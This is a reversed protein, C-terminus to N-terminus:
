AESLRVVHMQKGYVHLGRNNYILIVHVRSMQDVTGHFRFRVRKEKQYEQMKLGMLGIDEASLLIVQRSNFTHRNYRARQNVNRQTIHYLQHVNANLITNSKKMTTNCMISLQRILPQVLHDKSMDTDRAFVALHSPMGFPSFMEFDFSGDAAVATTKYERFQPLHLLAQEAAVIQNGGNFEYLVLNELKAAGPLFSFDVDRLELRFDRLEPPLHMTEYNLPSSCGIRANPNLIPACLHQSIRKQSQFVPGVQNSKELVHAFPKEILRKQYEAGLHVLCCTTAHAGGANALIAEARVKTMAVKADADRGFVPVQTVVRLVGGFYSFSVVADKTDFWVVSPAQPGAQNGVDNFQVFFTRNEEFSLALDQFVWTGAATVGVLQPHDGPDTLVTTLDVAPIVVEFLNGVCLGNVTAVRTAQDTLRTDPVMGFETVLLPPESGADHHKATTAHMLAEIPASAGVFHATGSTSYEADGLLFFKHCIKPQELQTVEDDFDDWEFKYEDNNVYAKATMPVCLLKQEYTAALNLPAHNLGRGGFQVIFKHSSVPEAFWLRSSPVIKSRVIAKAEPTAAADEAALLAAHDYNDINERFHQLSNLNPTVGDAQTASLNPDYFPPAILEWSYARDIQAGDFKVHNAAVSPFSDPHTSEFVQNTTYGQVALDDLRILATQLVKVGDYALAPLGVVMNAAAECQIGYWPSGVEDNMPGHLVPVSIGRLADQFSKQGYESFKKTYATFLVGGNGAAFDGAVPAGTTSYLHIANVPRANGMREFFNPHSAGAESPGYLAYDGGVKIRVGPCGKIYFSKLAASPLADLVDVEFSPALHYGAASTFVQDNTLGAKCLFCNGNSARTTQIPRIYIRFTAIDAVVSTQVPDAVTFKQIEQAGNLTVRFGESRYVFKEADWRFRVVGNWASNDELTGVSGAGVRSILVTPEWEHAQELRPQDYLSATTFDDGTTPRLRGPDNIGLINVSVDPYDSIYPKVVTGDNYVFGGVEEVYTLTQLRDDPAVLTRIESISRVPERIEQHCNEPRLCIEGIGRELARELRADEADTAESDGAENAEMEMKEESWVGAAATLKVGRARKLDCLVSIVASTNHTHGPVGGVRYHAQVPFDTTSTQTQTPKIVRRRASGGTQLLFGSQPMQSVKPRVESQIQSM